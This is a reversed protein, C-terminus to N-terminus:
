HGLVSRAHDLTERIMSMCQEHTNAQDRCQGYADILSITMDVSSLLVRLGPAEAGPEGAPPEQATLRSLKSAARDLDGPALAASAVVATLCTLSVAIALRIKM